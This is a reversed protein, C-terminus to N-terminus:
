ALSLPGAAGGRGSGPTLPWVASSCVAALRLSLPCAPLGDACLVDACAIVHQIDHKEMMPSFVFM